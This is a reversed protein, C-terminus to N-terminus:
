RRGGTPGPDPEDILAPVGGLTFRVLGDLLRERRAPRESRPTELYQAVAGLSLAVVLEVAREVDFSRGSAEALRTYDAALSEAWRRREERLFRRVRADGSDRERLQIRLVDEDEAAVDFLLSYSAHAIDAFTRGPAPRHVASLRARFSDAHEGLIALLLDTKDGFQHYFSGVAVGAPELVDAVLNTGALGKRAFARRGAELLRQRNARAPGRLAKPETAATV